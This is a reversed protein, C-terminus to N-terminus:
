DGHPQAPGPARVGGGGKGPGAGPRVGLARVEARMARSARVRIALSPCPQSRTARAKRVEAGGGAPGARAKERAM